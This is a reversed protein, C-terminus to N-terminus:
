ESRLVRAPDLRSARRAPVYSAIAVLPLLLAAVSVYRGIDLPSVDFLLSTVLSSLAAAVMAGGALGIMGIMAAQRVIGVALRGPAAGLAMRVGMSPTRFTVIFSTVGVTGVGPPFDRGRGRVATPLGEATLVRGPGAPVGLLAFIGRTAFAGLLLGSRGELEYTVPVGRAFALGSFADVRASWDQFTPYSPVRMRGSAHREFVNYLEGSHEYPLPELVVAHVLSFVATNAGIGLGLTLVVALAFGPRRRVARWAHVADAGVTGPDLRM